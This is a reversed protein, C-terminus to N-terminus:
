NEVMNLWNDNEDILLSCPCDGFLRSWPGKLTKWQIVENRMNHQQKIIKAPNEL